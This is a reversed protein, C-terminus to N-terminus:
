PLVELRASGDPGYVVRRDPTGRQMTDFAVSALRPGEYTEWKDLRGDGSTDQEARVIAGKEYYEVRDIRGTRGTSLELRAIAGGGDYYAWSDVTGDHSRSSGIKEITQDPGYYEWRDIVDNQDPDLEIRVIRAGDMYSWTDVKGDGNADYKLLQLRGTAQDYVPELRANEDGSSGCRVSALAAILLPIAVRLSHRAL